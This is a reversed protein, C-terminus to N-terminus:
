PNGSSHWVSNSEVNCKEKATQIIIKQQSRPIGKNWPPKALRRIGKSINARHAESLQKGRLSAAMKAIGEPTPKWGMKSRSIKAKSEPTHKRGGNALSMNMRTEDTPLHNLGGSTANYGIGKVNSRTLLIWLIELENLQDISNAEALVNIEFSEAGYKHIAKSLPGTQRKSHVHQSFRRSVPQITQGIYYKGSIRNTVAYIVGFAM